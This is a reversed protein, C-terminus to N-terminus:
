QSALKSIWEGVLASNAEDIVFSGLPPMQQKNDGRHTILTYLLSEDPDGAVIRKQGAWRMTTADQGVTTTVSEYESPNRGDLLQPDLVLRMGRAYAKSDPNSNHCSVGCNVHLWGLAPAAVGTGDDGIEPQIPGKFGTLRKDAVLSTLSIGEAGELGLSVQEFGLLQEKRGGHCDNCETGSPIHYQHGGAMFDEAGVRKAETDGDNWQYSAKSWRDTDIKAFLRTEIRKGDVRFEKWARTGVPFVWASPNSADITKGNPLYIWRSKDAGDSWLVHAPAFSTVGAAFAKQPLNSYLGTCSLSNPLEDIAVDVEKRCAASLEFAAGSALKGGGVGGVSDVDHSAMCGGCLLAVCGISGLKAFWTM